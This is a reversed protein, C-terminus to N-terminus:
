SEVQVDEVNAEITEENDSDLWDGEGSIVKTKAEEETEAEISYTSLMTKLELLTVRFTPM